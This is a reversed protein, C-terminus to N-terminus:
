PKWSDQQNNWVICSPELAKGWARQIGLLLADRGHYEARFLGAGFDMKKSSRAQVKGIAYRM